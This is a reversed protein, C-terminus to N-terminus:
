ESVANGTHKGEEPPNGKATWEDEEDGPRPDFLSGGFGKATAGPPVFKFRYTGSIYGEKIQAPTAPTLSFEFQVRTESALVITVIQDLVPNQENGVRYRAIPTGDDDTLVLTAPSKYANNDISLDFQKGFPFGGEPTLATGQQRTSM